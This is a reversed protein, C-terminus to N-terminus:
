SREFAAAIEDRLNRPAEGAVASAPTSKVSSAAVRARQTAGNPTVAAKAAARQQLVKSVEPHLSVAQDYAQKPTKAIGRRASLDLIDAMDERVDEFFELEQVEQVAQQARVQLTQQQQAKAAEVQQLLQDVRPDRQPQQNWQPSATVQQGSLVQDLLELGDRGPLYTRVINAVIQARTMPAGTQLAASTQLLNQVARKADVGEARFLQEYPTTTEKFWQAAQRAESSEQLARTIETERRLVEQQVEPPLTGFLERQTARWSQPPKVPPPAEVPPAVAVEEVKAPQAEVSETGAPTEVKKAFRGKEDRVRDAREQETEGVPADPVAVTEVAAEVVPEPTPEPADFAARLDDSLSGTEETM